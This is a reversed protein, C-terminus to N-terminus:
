LKKGRPGHTLGHVAGKHFGSHHKKHSLKKVAGGHKTAISDSPSGGVSDGSSHKNFAGKGAM